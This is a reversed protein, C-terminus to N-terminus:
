ETGYDKVGKTMIVYLGFATYGIPDSMGQDINGRNFSRVPYNKNIKCDEFIWEIRIDSLDKLIVEQCINELQTLIELYKTPKNIYQWDDTNDCYGRIKDIINAETDATLLEDIRIQYLPWYNGVTPFLDIRNKCHLRM